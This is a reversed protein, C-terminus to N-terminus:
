WQILGTAEMTTSTLLPVCGFVSVWHTWASRETPGRFMGLAIVAMTTPLLVFRSLVYGVDGIAIVQPMWFDRGFASQWIVYTAFWSLVIWWCFYTAFRHMRGVSAGRIMPFWLAAGAMLTGSQILWVNKLDRGFAIVTFALAFVTIQKLFDSLRLSRRSFPQM